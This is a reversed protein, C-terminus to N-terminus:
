PPLPLHNRKRMFHVSVFGQHDPTPTYKQFGPLQQSVLLGRFWALSEFSMLNVLGLLDEYAQADAPFDQDLQEESMNSNM